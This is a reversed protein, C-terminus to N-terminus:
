NEIKQQYTREAEMEDMPTVPISVVPLTFRHQYIIGAGYHYDKETVKQLAQINSKFLTFDFGLIRLREGSDSVAKIFFQYNGENTLEYKKNFFDVAEQYLKDDIKVWTNIREDYPLLDHKEVVDTKIRTKLDNVEELESRTFFDYCNVYHTWHQDPYLTITGLSFDNDGVRYVRVPFTYVKGTDNELIACEIKSINVSYGGANYIDLFVGVEINGLDHSLDIQEQMSIKIDTGKTIQIIPPMQTLILAIIAVIVSLASWLNPNKRNM